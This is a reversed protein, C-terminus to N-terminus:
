KCQYQCSLVFLLLYVLFMFYVFQGKTSGALRRYSYWVDYATRDAIVAVASSRTQVVSDVQAIFILCVFPHQMLTQHSKLTPQQLQMINFDDQAVKM